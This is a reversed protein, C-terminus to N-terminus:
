PTAFVASETVPPGASRQSAADTGSWYDRAPETTVVYDVECGSRHLAYSSLTDRSTELGITLIEQRPFAEALDGPDPFRLGGGYVWLEADLDGAHVVHSKGVLVVRVAERGAAITAAMRAARRDREPPDIGYVSVKSEELLARFADGNFTQALSWCSSERPPCTTRFGEVYLGADLGSDVLANALDVAFKKIPGVGHREGVFIYKIQEAHVRTVIEELSSAQDAPVCSAHSPLPLFGSLLFFLALALLAHRIHPEAKM